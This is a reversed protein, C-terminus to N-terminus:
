CPKRWEHKVIRRWKKVGETEVVARKTCACKQSVGNVIDAQFFGSGELKLLELCRDVADLSLWGMLSCSKKLKRVSRKISPNLVGCPKKLLIAALSVGCFFVVISYQNQAFKFITIM